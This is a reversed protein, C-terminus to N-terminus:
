AGGPEAPHRNKPGRELMTKPKVQEPKRQHQRSEFADLRKAMADCEAMIKEIPEAGSGTFGMHQNDDARDVGSIKGKNKSAYFVEEGKKKGYQSVMASKIKEGKESLPM